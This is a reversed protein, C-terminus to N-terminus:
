LFDILSLSRFKSQVSFVFISTSCCFTSPNLKPRLSSDNHLFLLFPYPAIRLPRILPTILPKLAMHPAILGYRSLGNRRLPGPKFRRLAEKKRDRERERERERLSANKAAGYCSREAKSNSVARLPLSARMPSLRAPCQTCLNRM